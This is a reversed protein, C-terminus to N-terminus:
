ITYPDGFLFPGARPATTAWANTARVNPGIEITQTVTYVITNSYTEAQQGSGVSLRYKVRGTAIAPTSSAMLIEAPSPVAKFAAIAASYGGSGTFNFTCTTSASGSSVNDASEAKNVGGWGTGASM